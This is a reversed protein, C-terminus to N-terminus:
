CSLKIALKIAEMMSTPDAKGKGARRPDVFPGEFTGIVGKRHIGQRELSPIPGIKLGDCGPIEVGM